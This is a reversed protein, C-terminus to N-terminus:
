MIAKLVEGKSHSHETVCAKRWINPNAHLSQSQGSSMPVLSCCSRDYLLEVASVFSNQLNLSSNTDPLLSCYEINLVDRKKDPWLKPKSM